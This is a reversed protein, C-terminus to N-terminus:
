SGKRRTGTTQKEEMENLEELEEKLDLIIEELWWVKSFNINPEGTQDIWVANEYWVPDRQKVLREIARDVSKQKYHKARNCVQCVPLGNKIDFFFYKNARTICHDVQIIKDHHIRIHSAHKQVHCYKGYKKYCVEKWLAYAKNQLTKVKNRKMVLGLERGLRCKCVLFGM